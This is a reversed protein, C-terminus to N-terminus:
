KPRLPITIVIGNASSSARIMSSPKNRYRGVPASRAPLGPRAPGSCCELASSAPVASVSRQGSRALELEYDCRARVFREKSSGSDAVLPTGLTQELSLTRGPENREPATGFVSRDAHHGRLARTTRALFAKTTTRTEPQEPKRTKGATSTEQKKGVADTRPWRRGDGM